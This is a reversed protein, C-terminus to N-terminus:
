AKEEQVYSQYIEDLEALEYITDIERLENGEIPYIKLDFEKIEKDVIEDWFLNEHGAELYAKEIALRLKDADKRIFYSIGVMNYSDRGYKHVGTIRDKEVDFVWDESIGSVMKGLYGSKGMPIRFIDRNQVYLDAECIYCDASGLIEGVAKLSSINNKNRYEENFILQVEKYKEELYLFAEKRYGAVVFIREVSAEKLGDILTEIMPHGKIKVLPKPIEDTIPRMRSGVGAAMIIAIKKM